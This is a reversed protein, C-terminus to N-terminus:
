RLPTLLPDRGSDFQSVGVGVIHDVDSVPVTFVVEIPYTQGLVADAPVCSSTPRSVSFDSIPEWRREEAVLVVACNVREGATRQTVEMRAVVWVADAPAPKPDDYRDALSTTQTLSLLIFEAGRSTATAGPPLQDFREPPLHLRAYTIWWVLYLGVLSAAIALNCWRRVGDSRGPRLGPQGIPEVASV